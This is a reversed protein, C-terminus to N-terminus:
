SAAATAEALPTLLMLPPPLGAHRPAQALIVSAALYLCAHLRASGCPMM